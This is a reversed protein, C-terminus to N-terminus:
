PTFFFCFFFFLFVCLGQVRCAEPLICVKRGKMGGTGVAEGGGDAKLGGPNMEKCRKPGIDKLQM